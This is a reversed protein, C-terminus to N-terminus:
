QLKYHTKRNKAAERMKIKTEESRKRGKLKAVHEESLQKGKHANSIKAKGEDSLKKGLHSERIKQKHEESFPERKIGRKSSSIKRKIEDSLKWSEPSGSRGKGKRAESMKRKSEETHTRGYRPSLEGTKGYNHHNTGTMKDIILNIECDNKLLWHQLDIRINYYRVKIEEPKIMNIYRQEEIFTDRRTPINSTLIRRKFDEPRRRYADRM